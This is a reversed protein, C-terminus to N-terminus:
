PFLTGQGTIFDRRIKMLEKQLADWEAADDCLKLPHEAKVRRELSRAKAWEEPHSEKTLPRFPAVTKRNHCAKCLLQLNKSDSSNGSIHDIVDGPDGCKRCKGHDRKRIAEKDSKTLRRERWNYGGGLIRVLKIRLEEIVEPEQDRGSARCRRARRVYEAEDRCLDACYMAAQRMQQIESSCNACVFPRESLQASTLMDRLADRLATRRIEKPM